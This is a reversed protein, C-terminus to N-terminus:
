SEIARDTGEWGIMEEFGRTRDLERTGEWESTGRRGDARGSEQGSGYCVCM